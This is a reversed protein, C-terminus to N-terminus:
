SKVKLEYNGLPLLWVGLLFTLGLRCAIGLGAFLGFTRLIPMPSSLLALFGAVNTLMTAACPFLMERLARLALQQRRPVPPLAAEAPTPPLAALQQVENLVLLADMLGLLIIVVPLPVTLLNLRYGLAGYVGLTLYTATAVIGLAYLVWAARRYLATLVAFMLLYGVGLFFGFDGQSLENLRAYVVGM